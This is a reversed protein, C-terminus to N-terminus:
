TINTKVSQSNFIGLYALYKKYIYRSITNYKCITNEITNYVLILLM